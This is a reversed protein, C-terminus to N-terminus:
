ARTPAGGTPYEAGRFKQIAAVLAGLTDGTM